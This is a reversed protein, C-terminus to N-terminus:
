PRYQKRGGKGMWCGREHLEGDDPRAVDAGGHGLADGAHVDDVLDGEDVDLLADRLALREVEHLGRRDVAEVGDEVAPAVVREGLARVDGDDRGAEWALGAHAAVVEELDVG